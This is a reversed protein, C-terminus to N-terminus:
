GGKLRKSIFSSIMFLRNRTSGRAVNWNTSNHWHKAENNSQGELDQIRDKLIKREQLYKSKSSQLLANEQRLEECRKELSTIRQLQDLVTENNNLTCLAMASKGIKEVKNLLVKFEKSGPKIQFWETGPLRKGSFHKHLEQEQRRPDFCLVRAWITEADLERMRAEPRQTIGIKVM